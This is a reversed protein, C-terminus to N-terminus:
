SKATIFIRKPLKLLHEIDNYGNRYANIEVVISPAKSDFCIDMRKKINKMFQVGREVANESGYLVETIGVTEKDEIERIRKIAPIAKNWFSEFIYNQQDVIEQLNSYIIQSAIGSSNNSVALAFYEKESVMFNGKIGGLHRIEAIKMLEKCYSINETTIETIYRLKVDRSKADLFSKRISEISLALSPRTYDM